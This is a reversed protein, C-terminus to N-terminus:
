VAFAPMNSRPKTWRSYRSDDTQENSIRDAAPAPRFEKVSSFGTSFVIQIFHMSAHCNAFRPRTLSTQLLISPLSKLASRACRTWVVRLSKKEEPLNM